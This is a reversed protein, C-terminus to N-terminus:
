RVLVLKQATGVATGLSNGGGTVAVSPVPYGVLTGQTFNNATVGASTLWPCNEASSASGPQNGGRFVCMLRFGLLVELTASNTSVPTIAAVTVFVGAANTSPDYCTADNGVQAACTAHGGNGQNGPLNLEVAQVTTRPIDGNGQGPQTQIRSEGTGITYDATGECNLDIIANQYSKRSSNTGTLARFVTNPANPTGRPNNIDPGAVVTMSYQGATTSVLTRLANVGARTNLPQGLLTNLYTLEIGWPKICDRSSQNAIWAVGARVPSITSRGLLGGFPLTATRRVTVRIADSTTWNNTATFVATSPDWNGGEVDGSSVSVASGLASNSGAFAVTGTVPSVGSTRQLRLAGALATADAGTQMENIGSYIRALDVAFACMGAAV